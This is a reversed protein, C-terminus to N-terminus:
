SRRGAAARGEERHPLRAPIELPLSRLRWGDGTRQLVVFFREGGYLEVEVVGFHKGIDPDPYGQEPLIPSPPFPKYAVVLLDMATLRPVEVAVIQKAYLERRAELHEAFMEEREAAIAAFEPELVVLRQELRAWDGDRAAQHAEKVIRVMQDRDDKRYEVHEKAPDSCGTAITMAVAALMVANWCFRM